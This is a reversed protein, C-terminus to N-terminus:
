FSLRFEYALSRGFNMPVSNVGRRRAYEAVEVTTDTLNNIRLRHEIDALKSKQDYGLFVDVTTSADVSSEPGQAGTRYNISSSVLFNNITKSLGASLTYDPVYKFNYHDSDPEKDESNGDILNFNLFSDFQKYRYRAELELGYASFDRGNTYVTADTLTIGSGDPLTANEIGRQIKNKYDAYYVNGQLFLDGLSKLYSVEFSNSEEPKLEPNGIIVNNRGVIFLEFLSPSRYSQGAIFKLTSSDSVSYVMTGRVSINEGFLEHDVVRAGLLGKIKDSEYGLQAFFSTESVDKGTLNGDYDIRSGDSLVFQFVDIERFDYNVGLELSYNDFLQSNFIASSNFYTAEIEGQEDNDADRSFVRGNWDYNALFELSSRDNIQHSFQYALLYGEVKHQNGVGFSAKPIVGFYGEEGRYVNISLEHSKYRGQININESDNYDDVDIAVGDEDIFNVSSDHSNETNASIFLGADGSESVWTKSLGLTSQGSSGIGAYAQGQEKETNKLVINIAGSYANTGYIVSAPGKLVEIREVDHINIRELITEGTAGHSTPVKNIMVLLKNAYHDQLVGRSTPISQKLYTRLVDVGAVTSIAERISRYGYRDIQERNVVSVTSVSNFITEERSSAIDVQVQLLQELSLAFLDDAAYAANGLTLSLAYLSTNSILRCFRHCKNAKLM